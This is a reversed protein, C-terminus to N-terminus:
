PYFLYVRYGAAKVQELTFVLKVPQESRAPFGKELVAAHPTGALYEVPQLVRRVAPQGSEDNLTLEIAPWIQPASARNRLVIDLAFTNPRNPLSQLESSDIDLEDIAAHIRTKCEFIACVESVMPEASPVVYKVRDHFAYVGQLALLALLILSSLSFLIRSVLRSKKRGKAKKIFGPEPSVVAPLLDLSTELPAPEDLYADIAAQNYLPLEDTREPSPESQKSEEDLSVTDNWAPLEEELDSENPTLANLRSDDFAQSPVDLELFEHSYVPSGEDPRSEDLDLSILPIEEEFGSLAPDDSDKREGLKLETSVFLDSASITPADQHPLPAVAGFPTETPAEPQRLQDSSVAGHVPATKMDLSATAPEEKVLNDEGNFVQQCVGCRVIGSYLKLQDQVVRFTTHCYPCRTALAM